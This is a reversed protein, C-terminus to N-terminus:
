ACIENPYITTNSKGVVDMASISVTYDAAELLPFSASCTGESQDCTM